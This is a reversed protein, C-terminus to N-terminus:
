GPPRALMRNVGFRDEGAVMVCAPRADIWRPAAGFSAPVRVHADPRAYQLTVALRAGGTTNHSGHWLGGAFVVLDGVAVPPVILQAVDGLRERAAAVVADDDECDVGLHDPSVGLEHTGAVFSLGTRPDINRLGLWMTIGPWALHEVDAHWPHRSGPKRLLPTAGWLMVDPGLLSRAVDVVAPECALELLAPVHEHASKFWPRTALEQEYSASPWAFREGLCERECERAISEAREMSLTTLPGLLGDRVFSARQEASLEM